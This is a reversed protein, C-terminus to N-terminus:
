LIALPKVFIDRSSLEPSGGRRPAAFTDWRPRAGFHSYTYCRERPFNFTLITELRIIFGAHRYGHPGDTSTLATRVTRRRTHRHIHYVSGGRLLINTIISISSLSAVVFASRRHVSRSSSSSRRGLKGALTSQRRCRRPIDSTMFSGHMSLSEQSILLPTTQHRSINGGRAPISTLRLFVPAVDDTRHLLFFYRLFAPQYYHHLPSKM